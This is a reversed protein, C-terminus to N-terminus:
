PVDWALPDVLAPVLGAGRDRGLPESSQEAGVTYMCREMIAPESELDPLHESVFSRLIQVDPIDSM